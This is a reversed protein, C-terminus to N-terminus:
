IIAKFSDFSSSKKLNCVQCLFQLNSIDDLGGKSLPVIHDVHFKGKSTGCHECKKCHMHMELFRNVIVRDRAKVKKGNFNNWLITVINQSPIITFKTLIYQQFEKRGDVSNKWSIIQEKTPKIAKILEEQIVPFFDVLFKEHNINFKGLFTVLPNEEPMDEGGMILLPFSNQEGKM